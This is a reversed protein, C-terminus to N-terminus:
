YSFEKPKKYEKEAPLTRETITDPMGDANNDVFTTITNGEVVEMYDLVGDNNTDISEIHRIEIEEGDENTTITSYTIRKLIGYERDITTVHRYQETNQNIWISTPEQKRDDYDYKAEIIVKGTGDIELYSDLTEDPQEYTRMFENGDQDYDYTTHKDIKGDNNTDVGMYLPRGKTDQQSSLVKNQSTGGEYFVKRFARQRANDYAKYAAVPLCQGTEFAIISIWGFLVYKGASLLYELPKNTM